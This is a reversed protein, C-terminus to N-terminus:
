RRAAKELNEGLNPSWQCNLLAFEQLCFGFVEPACLLITGSVEPASMGLSYALIPCIKPYMVDKGQLSTNAYKLELTALSEEEVENGRCLHEPLTQLSPNVYKLQLTELSEEGIENRRCLNELSRFLM